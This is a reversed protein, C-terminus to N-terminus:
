LSGKEQILVQRHGASAAKKAADSPKSNQFTSLVNGKTDLVLFTKKVM